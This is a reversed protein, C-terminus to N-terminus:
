KGAVFERVAQFYQQHGVWLLDNHGANPIVCLSKDKSGVSDYLHIASEVPVLEDIEGHIVLLPVTIARVKEEHLKQLEKARALDRTGEFRQTMRMTVGAGSSEHIMGALEAEYHHAVELAPHGGLSRGKVFLKGAFGEKRLMDRVYPFVARADTVMNSFLPTGGSKGYGRFDVAFLNAGAKLYDAAIDDYDCVVEGNGHFFLIIPSQKNLTYLRASLSVSREVPVMFDRAGPPPPTWVRRPFFMRAMLDPSDFLSYDIARPM